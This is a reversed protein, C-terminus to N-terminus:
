VNFEGFGEYNKFSLLYLSELLNPSIKELESLVTNTEVDLEIKNVVDGIVQPLKECLNKFAEEEGTVIEYFKDISIRRINENSFATGDLTIKWTINQSNRAIVEVLMCMAKADHLLTNQM